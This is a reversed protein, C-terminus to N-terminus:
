KEGKPLYFIQGDFKYTRFSEFYGWGYANRGGFTCVAYKHNNIPIFSKIM